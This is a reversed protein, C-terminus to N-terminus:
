GKRLQLRQYMWIGVAFLLTSITVLATLEFAIDRVGDGLIMVRRMAEGAHNTPLLDFIQITRGGITFLPVDPVPYMAKSLLTMLVGVSAGLNAAESDTRAFCAVM